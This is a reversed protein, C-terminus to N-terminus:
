ITGQRFTNPTLVIIKGAESITNAGLLKLRPPCGFTNPTLVKTEIFSTSTLDSLHQTNHVVIIFAQPPTLTM